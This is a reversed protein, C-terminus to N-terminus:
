NPTGNSPQIPASQMPNSTAQPTLMPNTSCCNDPHERTWNVLTEPTVQLGRLAPNHHHTFRKFDVHKWYEQNFFNNYEGITHKDTITLSYNIPKGSFFDKGHHYDYIQTLAWAGELTDGGINAIMKGQEVASLGVHSNVTGGIVIDKGPKRGLKENAEIAGLAMSESGAWIIDTEPHRRIMAETQKQARTHSWNSHLQQVIKVNPNSSVANELGTKYDPVASSDRTGHLAVLYHRGDSHQLHLQQAEQILRQALQQGSHKNNPFSHGIWYEYKERAEGVSRKEQEVMNTNFIFSKIKAQEAIELVDKTQAYQYIYVLYDPKPGHRLAENVIEPTQFRSEAYLVTLEINLDEAALQMYTTVRDWFVNGPKDPNVFTVRMVTKADLALPLLFAATITLSTLITRLTRKIRHSSINRM